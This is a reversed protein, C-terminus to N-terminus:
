LYIKNLPEHMSSKKRARKTSRMWVPGLVLGSLWGSSRQGLIFVIRFDLVCILAIYERRGLFILM